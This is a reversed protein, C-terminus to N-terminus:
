NEKGKPELKLSYKVADQDTITTLETAIFSLIEPHPAIDYNHSQLKQIRKLTTGIRKNKHWLVNGDFYTRQGQTILTIDSLFLGIYPLFPPKGDILSRYNVWNGLPSTLQNLTDFIELHKESISWTKKMRQLAANNLGSIVEMVGSYNKLDFLLKALQIFRKLITQRMKLNPTTIIEYLVWGSIKNFSDVLKSLNKCEKERLEKDLIWCNIEKFHVKKFISYEYFTIQNALERLNINLITRQYNVPTFLQNSYIAGLIEQRTIFFSLFIEELFHIMM